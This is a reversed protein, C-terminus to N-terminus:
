ASAAALKERLADARKQAAAVKEALTPKPLAALRAKREEKTEKVKAAKPEAFGDGSLTLTEPLTAGFATRLFQVSNLPSEYIVIRTSKRPKKSLTLTIDMNQEQNAPPTAPLASTPTSQHSSVEQPVPNDVVEKSKKKGSQKRAPHPNTLSHKSM